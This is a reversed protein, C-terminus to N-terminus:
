DFFLPNEFSLSNNIHNELIQKLNKTNTIDFKYTIMESNGVKVFQEYEKCQMVTKIDPVNDWNECDIYNKLKSMTQSQGWIRGSVGQSKLEKLEQTLNQKSITLEEIRSQYLDTFLDKLNLDTLEKSIEFISNELETMRLVRETKTVGKSLYKSMYASVNKIKYLCHIDTSNPNTWNIAKNCYYAKEQTKKQRTDGPFTKFGERFFDQMKRSYADVYNYGPKNQIRNWTKRLEEHKIYNNSLIHFHINGNEQKEAKWIYYQMNWNKRAETLFHNLLNSKIEEDTHKQKSSLTLTIFTLKYNIPKTHLKGTEIEIETNVKKSIQKKGTLKANKSIYLLYEISNRLRKRSHISLENYHNENEELNKFTEIQKSSFITKDPRVFLTLSNPKLSYYPIYIFDSMSFNKSKHSILYVLLYRNSSLLGM